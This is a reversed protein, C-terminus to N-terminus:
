RTVFAATLLCMAADVIHETHGVHGTLAGAAADDLFAYREDAPMAGYASRNITGPSVANVRILALEKALQRVAFAVAGNTIGTV